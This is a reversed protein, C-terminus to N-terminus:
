KFVSIITVAASISRYLLRCGLGTGLGGENKKKVVTSNKWLQLFSHPSVQTRAVVVDCGYMIQSTVIFMAGTCKFGASTSGWIFDTGAFLFLYKRVSPVSM